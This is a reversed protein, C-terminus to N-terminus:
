MGAGGGSNSARRAATARDVATDRDSGGAGCSALRAASEGVATARVAWSCAPTGREWEGEGEGGLWRSPAEAVIRIKNDNGVATPIFCTRTRFKMASCFARM